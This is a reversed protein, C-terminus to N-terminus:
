HSLGESVEHFIRRLLRRGRSYRQRLTAEAIQERKVKVHWRQIEKWSMNDILRLHLLRYIDLHRERLIYLAKYLLTVQEELIARDIPILHNDMVLADMTSPDFAVNYRQKRSKERIIFRATGRIWARPNKLKKGQNIAKKGRLYAEFLIGYAEVGELRFQLIQRRIGTIVSYAAPTRGILIDEIAADLIKHENCFHSGYPDQDGWSDHMHKM